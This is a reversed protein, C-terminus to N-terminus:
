GKAIIVRQYLSDKLHARELKLQQMAEDSIPEGNLELVRIKKDLATYQKNDEVFGEDTEALKTIVDKLEPFDNVLAHDEGLM